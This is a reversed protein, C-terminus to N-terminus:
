YGISTGAGFGFTNGLQGSVEGPTGGPWGGTADLRAVVQAINASAIAGQPLPGLEGLRAVSRAGGPLFMPAPLAAAARAENRARLAAAAALLSRVVTEPPADEAVGLADRLEARALLLDRRVAEPVPAYRPDRPLAATVFELQAAAQAAEAPRGALGRASYALAPAMADIAGRIPDATGPTVAQLPVPMPPPAQRMEACGAAALALLLARRRM